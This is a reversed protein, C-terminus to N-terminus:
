LPYVSIADYISKGKWLIIPKLFVTRYEFHNIRHPSIFASWFDRIRKQTSNRQTSGHARKQARWERGRYETLLYISIDKRKIKKANKPFLLLGGYQSYLVM